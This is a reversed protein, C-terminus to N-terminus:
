MTWPEAHVDTVESWQEQLVSIKNIITDPLPEPNHAATLFEQLNEERATSGVTALINPLSHAYRVCFETWGKVGSEEFIPAVQVAREQLYRKWAAGPVDRLAHVDGGAVTRMAILPQSKEQLLQWLNNAAFRQLPNLYFIFADVLGSTHGEKLAQYAIDSTWPFVELVFSSVLGEEKIARLSSLSDGGTAFDRALGGGLCLQGVDVKELGLPQLNLNIDGRFTEITDGELKIILPPIKSPQEDFARRLVQLADGYMRSTHFTVGADMAIRAMKVREDERISDDGLRTTGYIYPTIFETLGTLAM